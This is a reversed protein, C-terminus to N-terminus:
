GLRAQVIGRRGNTRWQPDVAALREALGPALGAIPDSKLSRLAVLPAPFYNAVEAFPTEPPWLADGSLRRYNADGKILVLRAGTFTETLRPPLDWLLRPSNWYGDPALRLQGTALAAALRHGLQAAREGRLGSQLHAILWRTDEATADSVFTPHLKLHLIVNASLERLVLDLLALDLLLESGANDAVLHVTGASHLLHAAVAARDDVLLDDDQVQGHSAAIAYSLDVRNGWLAFDLLAVLREELSGEATLAQDLLKWPREGTYEALKKPAFPDRGTEWWRVAQIVRRYAFLEAFFWDTNQWTEGAHPAFVAQWDDYDPTPLDLRLMPQNNAMEAALAELAQRIAPPYDPNLAAIERVTAPVRVHMTHNAFPNSNDTRIMPPRSTM